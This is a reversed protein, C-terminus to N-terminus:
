VEDARTLALAFTLVALIAEHPDIVLLESAGFLCCAVLAPPVGLHHELESVAGVALRPEAILRTREDVLAAAAAVARSAPDAAIEMAAVRRLVSAEAGTAPLPETPLKM